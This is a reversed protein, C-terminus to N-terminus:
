IPSGRSALPKVNRRLSPPSGSYSRKWNGREPPKNNLNMAACDSAGGKLKLRSPQQGLIHLANCVHIAIALCQGHKRLGLRRAQLRGRRVTVLEM